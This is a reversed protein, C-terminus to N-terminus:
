KTMAKLQYAKAKSGDGGELKELEVVKEKMLERIDSIESDLTEQDKKIMTEVNQKPLKVFMDGLNVWVKKEQVLEKKLKSLAERNSNRRRDYDVIQKQCREQKWLKIAEKVREPDEEWLVETMRRSEYLRVLSSYEGSSLGFKELVTKQGELHSRMGMYDDWKLLPKIMNDSCDWYSPNKDDDWSFGVYGETRDIISACIYEVADILEMPPREKVGKGTGRRRDDNSCTGNNRKDDNGNCDGESNINNRIGPICSSKASETFLCSSSLDFSVNPSITMGTIRTKSSVKPIM